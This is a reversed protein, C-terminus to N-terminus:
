ALSVEQFDMVGWDEGNLSGSFKAVWMGWDNHEAQVIRHEARTSHNLHFIPLLQSLDYPNSDFLKAMKVCLNADSGGWRFNMAEEFGRVDCWAERGTLQFDGVKRWCIRPDDTKPSGSMQLASLARADGECPPWFSRGVMAPCSIYFRDRHLQRLVPYVRLPVIDSNTSCVWPQRTQRIALNRSVEELMPLRAKDGWKEEIPPIVEPGIRFVRLHRKTSPLLNARIKEPLTEQESNFDVFIIEDDPALVRSWGNLSYTTREELLYGYGDNRGLMVVCLM